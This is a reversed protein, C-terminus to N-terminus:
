YGGHAALMEMRRAFTRAEELDAADPHSAASVAMEAWEQHEPSKALATRAGESLRGRCHFTGAIKAQGALLVAYEIAERSLPHGQLSGHTSFLAITKGAPIRRLFLEVPYPLSHMEVPFGVFVLDYGDLGGVQSFPRIEAGALAGCIARAVTETNGSRSYYTVLITSM